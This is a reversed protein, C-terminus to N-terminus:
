AAAPSLRGHIAEVDDVSLGGDPRSAALVGALEALRIVAAPTGAAIEHVTRASTDQVAVPRGVVSALTAELLRRTEAATFTPLAVRIRVAQELRTDRTMLTFLRGEGALVLCAAPRRDRCRQLLRGLTAEDAQHADDVLVVEPLAAAEAWHAADGLGVSRRAGIAAALDALVTTKGVGGPGCLLAVGGAQECGCALKAVAARQADTLRDPLPESM